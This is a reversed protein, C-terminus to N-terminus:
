DDLEVGKEVRVLVEVEIVNPLFFVAGGTCLV